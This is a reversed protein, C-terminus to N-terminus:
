QGVVNDKVVATGPAIEPQRSLLNDVIQNGSGKTLTLPSGKADPRDDGILCDSVRSSSVNELLLGCTGYDLITCGTLNMRNCNRLVLAAPQSDIGQLHNGTLTCDSCDTFVLGLQASAADGSHYRPNREFVNQAVVLNACNAATLNQTYGQWLTNGTITAGRVNQLDINVHVDSLVNNAITIHGWRLEDTYRVKESQGNIRINASNPADHAHQITCGVIAVEAISGGTSDLLVNATPPSDPGGMNAEIDCTGIQLNRLESGRVVVGGGHNYSIHCNAINIQHLNVQDLYVGVGRNDYLNCESLTVNRNRKVLHVAHLARRVVLRTLTLQMTGAAEVGCAEEHRGLIELGDISPTREREWVNPKFTRPAATGEHTGLFRIAPGPGDMIIQAAGDGAIATYGVRDLEISIPRTIRYRGPPFHLLGLGADVARQIAATDDTAGDGLAGFDRVTQLQTAADKPAADQAALTLSLAVAALALAGLLLVSKSM